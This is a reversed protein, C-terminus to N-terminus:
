RRPIPREAVWASGSSFYHGPVSSFQTNSDETGALERLRTVYGTQLTMRVGLNYSQACRVCFASSGDRVREAHRVDSKLSGYGVLGLLLLPVLALALKAWVSRGNPPTTPASM